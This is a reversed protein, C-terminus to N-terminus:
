TETRWQSAFLLSSLADNCQLELVNFDLIGLSSVRLMLRRFFIFSMTKSFKNVKKSIELIFKNKKRVLCPNRTFKFYHTVLVVPGESTKAGTGPAWYGCGQPLGTQSMRGPERIIGAFWYWHWPIDIPSNTALRYWWLINGARQKKKPTMLKKFMSKRFSDLLPTHLCRTRNCCRVSLM